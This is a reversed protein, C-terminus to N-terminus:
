INTLQLKSQIEVHFVCFFIKLHFFFHVIPSLELCVEPNCTGCVSIKEALLEYDQGQGPSEIMKGEVSM